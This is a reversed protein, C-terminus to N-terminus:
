ETTLKLRYQAPTLGGLGVQIRKNNYYRIYNIIADKLEDINKYKVGYYIENKLRSFFTEM